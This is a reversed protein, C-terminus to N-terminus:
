GETGAPPPLLGAAGVREILTQGNDTLMYPMFVADFSLIGTEVAMVQGKVWDRLISNVAIFGQRLAKQEYDHRNSARKANWPNERLFLAAWGKASAQLQMQRGRHKFALLLTYNEFNDMFGVSECGFRRLVKAIEDRAAAGSSATAYPVSM